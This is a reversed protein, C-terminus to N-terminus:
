RSGNSVAPDDRLTPEVHKFPDKSIPLATNRTFKISKYPLYYNGALNGDVLVPGIIDEGKGGSPVSVGITGDDSRWGSGLLQNERITVNRMRVAGGSERDPNGVPGVWGKRYGSAVAIATVPSRAGYNYIKNGVIQLGNQLGWVAIAGACFSDAPLNIVNDAIVIEANPKETAASGVGIPFSNIVMDAHIFRRFPGLFGGSIPQEIPEITNGVIRARQCGELYFRGAVAKYVNGQMLVDACDHAALDDSWGTLHNDIYELGDTNSFGISEANQYEARAFGVNRIFKINKDRTQGLAFKPQVNSCWWGGASYGNVHNVDRAPWTVKRFDAFCDQVIFNDAGYVM